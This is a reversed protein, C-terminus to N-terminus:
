TASSTDTSNSSSHDERPQGPRPVPERYGDLTGTNQTLWRSVEPLRRFQWTAAADDATAPRLTLRPTRVPWAVTDHLRGTMAAVPGRQSRVYQTWAYRWPIAAIIFVVFACNVTIPVDRREHRRQHRQSARGPLAVAAELHDRVAAGAPAQGPVAARPVRPVVDRDAAGPHRRGLAADHLSGPTAAVERTRARHGMFAYGGRMLNIRALSLEPRTTPPPAATVTSM